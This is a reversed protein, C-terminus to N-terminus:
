SRNLWPFLKKKGPTEDDKGRGGSFLGGKVIVATNSM